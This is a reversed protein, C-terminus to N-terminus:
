LPNDPNEDQTKRSHQLNAVTAKIADTIFITCTTCVDESKWPLIADFARDLKLTRLEHHPKEEGCIDCFDKRM